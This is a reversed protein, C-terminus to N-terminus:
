KGRCPMVVEIESPAQVETEIGGNDTKKHSVTVVGYPTPISGEVWDLDGLHPDVLLKKCGPELPKFGLIHESLWATPGGAWGHCLSHRLGKYCYNGYDKHIDKKDTQPMEDIRTANEMWELDFDEWFTTAGMNIMGGWYKRILDLTGKYDGAKARAELVYYGYFTSVGKYPNVALVDENIKQPSDFGAISKLANAQKNTGGDPNHQKLKGVIERCKEAVIKEDLIDCLLEGSEFAWILLSQLGAHVVKDDGNTPWDLFRSEPLIESGSDDIFNELSALLSLLYEKQETLYDLNGKYLYWDKQIIIWWLSYSSIDNIWKPIPTQNKAYDLSAPVIGDDDFLSCIVKVEPHMDGLWVLRDRKIGDWVYEQMNLHVTYAGTEWIVNLREDSCEFSGKYELDRYVAVARVEKIEIVPDSQEDGNQDIMDIRVYRFGTNGFEVTGHWPIDLITDHVAHDNNPENIAESISEGFRIRIKTISNTNAGSIIKIGGHIEKGYDLCFGAGKKLVCGKASWPSANNIGDKLLTDYNEQLSVNENQWVIQKPLIHKRVRSDSYISNNIM